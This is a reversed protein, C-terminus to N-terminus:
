DSINVATKNELASLQIVLIVELIFKPKHPGNKPLSSKTRYINTAFIIRNRRSDKEKIKIRECNYIGGHDEIKYIKYRQVKYIKISKSNKNVTNEIIEKVDEFATTRCEQM